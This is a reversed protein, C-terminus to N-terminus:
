PMSPEHGLSRSFRDLKGLLYEINCNAFGLICHALALAMRGGLAFASQFPALRAGTAKAGGLSRVDGSGGCLRSPLFRLVRLM